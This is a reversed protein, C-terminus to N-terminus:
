HGRGSPHIVNKVHRLFYVMPAFEEQFIQFRWALLPLIKLIKWKHLTLRVVHIISLLLIPPLEVFVHGINEQDVTIACIWNLSIQNFSLKERIRSSLLSLPSSISNGGNTSGKSRQGQVRAQSKKGNGHSSTTEQAETM